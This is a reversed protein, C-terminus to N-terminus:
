RTRRTSTIELVHADFCDAWLEAVADEKERAEATPLEIASPAGRTTEEWLTSFDSDVTTAGGYLAQGFLLANYCGIEFAEDRTASLLAVEEGVLDRRMGTIAAWASSQAHALAQSTRVKAERKAILTILMIMFGIMYPDLWVIEPIGLLRQRSREVLPNITAVAAKRGQGSKWVGEFSPWM